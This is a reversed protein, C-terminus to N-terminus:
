DSIVVTDLWNKLALVEQESLKNKRGKPMKNKIFVQENIDIALSDMNQMTFVDQRRKTAHCFNCQKVLIKFAATKLGTQVVIYSKDKLPKEGKTNLPFNLILVSILFVFKM